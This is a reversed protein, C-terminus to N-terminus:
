DSPQEPTHPCRGTWVKIFDVLEMLRSVEALGVSHLSSLFHMQLEDIDLKIREGAPGTVTLSHVDWAPVIVACPNKHKGVLHEIADKSQRLGPHSGDTGVIRGAERLLKIAPIKRNNAIMTKIESIISLPAVIAVQEM